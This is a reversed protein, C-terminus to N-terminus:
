GGPSWQEAPTQGLNRNPQGYAPMGGGYNTSGGPSWPMMGGGYGGGGGGGGMWPPAGGGGTLWPPMGPLNFTQGHYDFQGGAGIGGGQPGSMGGGRGGAPAGGGGLLGMLWSPIGGAGGFPMNPQGGGGGGQGRSGPGPGGRGGGGPMGGGMGPYPPWGQGGQGGSGAFPNYGTPGGMMPPMPTNYMPPIGRGGGGGSGGLLQEVFGFGSPPGGYAQKMAMQTALDQMPSRGAAMVGPYIPGGPTSAYGMLIPLMMELLKNYPSIPIIQDESPM